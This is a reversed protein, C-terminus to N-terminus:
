YEYGLTENAEAILEMASNLLDIADADSDQYKKIFANLALEIKQLEALANSQNKSGSWSDRDERLVKKVVPRIVKEVLLKEQQRNM